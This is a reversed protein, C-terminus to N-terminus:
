QGSAVSRNTPLFAMPDVAGQGSPHIEFHSHPGTSFGTSGMESIQQGQTVQQGERVLIRDNHAYLTVSGNPHTIEVLNGYGGDNWAAYTVIGDDAAVVPTGIPAAIDIGRHMRGWRWGYGSTLEGKSPWIFGKSQPSGGPLYRDAGPLPPLEPSVMRGLTPNNLPDYAEAGIPATAVLSTKPTTSPITVSTAFKTTASLEQNSKQAKEVWQRM